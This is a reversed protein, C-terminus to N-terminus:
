VLQSFLAFPDLWNQWKWLQPLISPNMDKESADMCLFVCVTEDLIQVQTALEMEQSSIVSFTGGIYLILEESSGFECGKKGGPLRKFLDATRGFSSGLAM